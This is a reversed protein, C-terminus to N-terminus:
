KIIKNRFVRFKAKYFRIKTRVSLYDNKSLTMQILTKVIKKFGFWGKVFMKFNREFRQFNTRPTINRKPFKTYRVKEGLFYQLKEADSNKKIDIELFNEKELFYDRVRKNHQEYKSVYLDKYNITDAHGYFFRRIKNNYKNKGYFRQVSEIWENTERILFVFKANPYKEFLYPYIMYWPDDQFADFKNLFLDIEKYNKNIADEFLHTDPGTVLYGLRELFVALSTTGTKHLSIIFVKDKKM